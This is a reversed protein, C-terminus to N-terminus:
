SCRVVFGIDGFHRHMEELLVQVTGRKPQVRGHEIHNITTRTVGTLTALQSQTLNKSRRVSRVLDGLDRVVAPGAETEGGAAFGILEEETMHFARALCAITSPRPHCYGRELYYIATATLGTKAALAKRTKYGNCLRLYKIKQPWEMSDM